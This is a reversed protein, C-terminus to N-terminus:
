ERDRRVEVYTASAIAPKHLGAVYMRDGARRRNAHHTGHHPLGLREDGAHHSRRDPPRSRASLAYLMACGV